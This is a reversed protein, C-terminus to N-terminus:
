QQVVRLEDAMGHHALGCYEMCLVRYIGPETFTHKVRNIVGPMAQTQFLLTGDPHYVGVGHNVDHSGVNLVVPTAVPVERRSIDWSWQSAMVEVEVTGDAAEADHPWPRLSAYTVVFGVLVFTWVLALRRREVAAKGLAPEARTTSALVVWAFTVAVLGILSLSLALINAQM